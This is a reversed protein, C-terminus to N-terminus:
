DWDEEETEGHLEDFEEQMEKRQRWLQQNRNLLIRVLGREIKVVTSDRPYRTGLEIENITRARVGCAKSLERLTINYDYRMNRLRSPDYQKWNGPIPRFLWACAREARADSISLERILKLKVQERDWDMQQACRIAQIKLDNMTIYQYM